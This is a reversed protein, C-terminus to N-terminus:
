CFDLINKLDQLNVFKISDITGDQGSPWRLVLLKFTHVGFELTMHCKELLRKISYLLLM